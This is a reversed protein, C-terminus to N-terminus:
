GVVRKCHVQVLPHSSCIYVSSLVSRLRTSAVQFGVSDVQVLRILGAPTLDHKNCAFLVNRHWRRITCVKWCRSSTSLGLFVAHPQAIHQSKVNQLICAHVQMWISCAPSHFRKFEVTSQSRRCREFIWLLSNVPGVKMLCYNIGAHPIWWWLPRCFITSRLSNCEEFYGQWKVGQKSSSQKSKKLKLMQHGSLTFGCLFGLTFMVFRSVRIAKLIAANTALDTGCASTKQDFALARLLQLGISWPRPKTSFNPNDSQVREFLVTTTRSKSTINDMVEIKMHAPSTRQGASESFYVPKTCYGLVYLLLLVGLGSRPKSPLERFLGLNSSMLFFAQFCTM